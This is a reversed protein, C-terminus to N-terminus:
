LSFINWQESFVISWMAVLVPYVRIKTVNYM